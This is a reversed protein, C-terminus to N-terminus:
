WQWYSSVSYGRSFAPARSRPIHVYTSLLSLHISPNNSSLPVTTPLSPTPSFPSPLNLLFLLLLWVPPPLSYCHFNSHQFHFTKITGLVCVYMYLCGLQGTICTDVVWRNCQREPSETCTEKRSKLTSVLPLRYGHVSTRCPVISHYSSFFLM